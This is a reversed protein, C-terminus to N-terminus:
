ALADFREKALGPDPFLGAQEALSYLRRLHEADRASQYGGIMVFRDQFGSLWALFTVGTKYYRTPAEFITRSLPVLPDLIARFGAADGADLRRLAAAAPGALPDFAGLLADSGSEILQPFNFDDGTYCKVVSPLEDRIAIERAADLLSVKIGDIKDAHEAVIALFHGTAVDLDKDGWYGALAPDFMDGLWHLVVPGSAQRLLADYVEAYDAPGRATAALQRSCMLVPLVGAGEAVELQEAYAAIIEKLAARGAARQGTAAGGTARAEPLQDTGVGCAIRGERAKAEAGSRQILERAVPWDLGMGRQATDMADAVGLGLDWLRHRFALTADWDVETESAAVVHAAAYFVRVSM